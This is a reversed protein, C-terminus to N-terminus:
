HAAAWSPGFGVDVVLPVRLEVVNEMRERIIACAREVEDEPAEFLLEDHIQLLMRTALGARELRDPLQLMVEKCIDAASGQIPTNAAMRKGTALDTLNNSSLEPIYRRRGLMTEVYGTKLAEEVTADVWDRVGSYAEFYGDIYAQAQKRPIRLIGALATAGQGYITAFNITKGVARQERTVADLPVDFLQSATRAHVDLEEDFSEILKEDGSIHALVRLEIQSWDASILVHGPEAIFAQRIRRGEPTSIPTRQLDPDTTILRGTVGVTQQIRTHIRGTDPNVSATLVDTYTNILKTFKRHQLLESAIAHGKRELAELVDVNTSYGTKTRKIVPLGLDEFLVESLQKTSRINFERGAMSYIRQEHDAVIARFEVGLRDLDDPDVKIGQYEMRGLVASLPQDHERLQATQGEGEVRDALLPHLRGILDAHRCAWASVADLDARGWPIEKKGAGIVSKAVPATIHLYQRVIQGLRHPIVGAPDILFSALQVDFDVGRLEVGERRLALWLAKADHVVKARHADELWVKLVVLGLRGVGGAPSRLSLYTASGPRLSVAVGVLKTVAPPSVDHVPVVAIPEDHPHEFLRGLLARAGALDTVAGYEVDEEAAAIADREEESILSYFELEKHLANLVSPDPPTIRLDEFTEELPVHRDITALEQSIRAQAAHEAILEGRKGKIDTAHALIGELSGYTALLDGATKKGIGPIGPIDDIKDGMLALFDVFQEPTAGWKKFVLAADYTVDRLTDIMRVDPGILQAFDKDAALIHVEHGAELALRTLTGIIDDAEFGTMRLMPFNNAAVVKDIWPLQAKLDPDMRPRSSKYEPYKQARFTPGPADFVVAGFTPTRGAFTKRFMNAFGFVANTTLGFTTRLNAPLAFWARFIMSSGDVLVVREKAM